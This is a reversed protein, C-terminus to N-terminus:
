KLLVMKKIDSFNDTSIKYFYIGSTLSTNSNASFPFEYEGAKLRENVLTSVLRGLVDYVKLSVFGSEKIDFKIKTVPNFPNPYNQFLKYEDPVSSSITTIATPTYWRVNEVVPSKLSITVASDVGSSDISTYSGLGIGDWGKFTYILGNQSITRSLVGFTIPAASDYYIGGGFTNEVISNIVLQYRTKYNVTLNVPSNITINHSTDGGDSWNKFVYMTGGTVQPSVAQVNVSTGNPFILQQSTNYTVGNVKFNCIGPRNSGVTLINSNILLNIVRKHVPTGNKGAGFINIKYNKAPTITGVTKIKVFVSDPYVTISDKGNQFSATISGTAPLSDLSYTFKVRDSFIGKVGPVTVKIITSDNNVM